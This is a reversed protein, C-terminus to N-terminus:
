NSPFSSFPLPLCPGVGRLGATHDGGHFEKVSRKSAIINISNLFINPTNELTKGYSDHVLRGEQAVEDVLAQGGGGL